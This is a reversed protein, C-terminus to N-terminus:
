DPKASGRHHPSRRYHEELLDGGFDRELDRWVTHIHNAQNQTNDYELLFTPGQVRYYHGQGKEFGGAWAFSVKDWGAQEIRRLDEAALESRYRNVYVGVLEQLRNQQAPTLASWGIGPPDLRSVRLRTGTLIDSPATDSFVGVKRQDSSLSKVLARGLDEEQDLVRLPSGDARKAEAPNSGFFAPAVTVDHGEIILFNLSLHHGEFRWGWTNTPGPQGFLSLFYLDPDRVPGRGQEIEKLVIELSIITRAQLFGRESLAARLVGYVLERQAGSMEGLSVGNRERPVFHWNVREASRLEFCAKESLASPVSQLWARAARQMADATEHAGSPFVTAVLIFAAVFATGRVTWQTM